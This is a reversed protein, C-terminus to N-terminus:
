EKEARAAEAGRRFRGARRDASANARNSNRRVHNWHLAHGREELWEVAGWLPANANRGYLRNGCRVTVESDSVLEVAVHGSWRQRRNYEAWLAHVFPVLEAFMNTGATFAGEYRTVRAEAPAFAYCCWGCAFDATTGSGDAVLMLDYDDLGLGSAVAEMVGVDIEDRM